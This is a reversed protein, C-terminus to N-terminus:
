MLFSVVANEKLMGKPTLILHDNQLVALGKQLLQSVKKEPIKLRKDRWNLGSRLRINMAITEIRHKEEDLEEVFEYEMTEKHVSASWKQLDSFNSYRKDGSYSHASPGFGYYKRGSWYSLNHQSVHNPKAFNSIEYQDYGEQSLFEITKLYDKEIKQEDALLLLGKQARKGFASNPGVSLIYVSIHDPQCSVAMKLTQIWVDTTEFPLGCILDISVSRYPLNKATEIAKIATEVHHNRGLGKLTDHQFSQVGISLRNIGVQYFELFRQYDEPNAELSIESFNELGKQKWYEVIRQIDAPSTLSPTGGGIYLSFPKTLTSFENKRKDFEEFLTENYLFLNRYADTRVYFDCYPCRKQCFPIHVYIAYDEPINQSKFM